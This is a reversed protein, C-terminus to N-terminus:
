EDPFLKSVPVDLAKALIIANKSNTVAEEHQELYNIVTKKIGTKIALQEQSLKKEWRIEKLRNKVCM